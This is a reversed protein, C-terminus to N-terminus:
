TFRRERHRMDRSLLGKVSRSSSVLLRHSVVRSSDRDALIPRMELMRTSTTAAAAAIKAQAQLPPEPVKGDDIGRGVCSGTDVLPGGGETVPLEVLAAGGLSTVGVRGGIVSVGVVSDAVVGGVPVSSGASDVSAGVVSADEGWAGVDTAVVPGVGEIVRGITAAGVLVASVEDGGAV